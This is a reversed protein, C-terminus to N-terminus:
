SVQFTHRHVRVFITMTEYLIDGDEVGYSGIPRHDDRLPRGDRDELGQDVSPMGTEAEVRRKIAAVFDSPKVRRLTITSGDPRKVFVTMLLTLTDGGKVGYRIIVGLM